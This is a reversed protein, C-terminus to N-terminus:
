SKRKAEKNTLMSSEQGTSSGMTQFEHLGEHTTGTDGLSPWMQFFHFLNCVLM